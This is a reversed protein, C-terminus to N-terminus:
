STTGEGTGQTSIFKAMQNALKGIDDLVKKAEILDFPTCVVDHGSALERQRKNRKATHDTEAFEAASSVYHVWTTAFDDIDGPIDEFTGSPIEINDQKCKDSHKFTALYLAPGKATLRFQIEGECNQINHDRGIACCKTNVKFKSITQEEIAVVRHNCRAMGTFAAEHLSKLGMSKTNVVFPDTSPTSPTM